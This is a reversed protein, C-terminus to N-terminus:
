LVRRVLSTQVVVQQDAGRRWPPSYTATLDSAAPSTSTTLASLANYLRLVPIPTPHSLTWVVSSSPPQPCISTHVRASCLCVKWRSRPPQKEMSGAGNYNPSSALLRPSPSSPPCCQHRPRLIRSKRPPSPSPARSGHFPGVQCPPLAIFSHLAWFDYLFYYCFLYIFFYFLLNLLRL